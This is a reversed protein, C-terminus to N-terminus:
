IRDMEFETATVKVCRYLIINNWREEPGNDSIKFELIIGFNIM